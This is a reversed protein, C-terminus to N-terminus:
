RGGDRWNVLRREILDLAGPDVRLRHKGAPAIVLQKPRGAKEYLRHAHELPIVEDEEGHVLFVPRPSIREIWALPSVQEFEREWEALSGPFAPDRILGIEKFLKVWGEAPMTTELFTFQAPSSASVVAKIRPDRAAQYIAIAAGASFGLLAIRDADVAPLARGFEIVAALDRAWGLMSLDGESLGTGRFNFVLAAFGREAFRRAMERYSEDGPKPRARPIGHLIALLPLREARDTAFWAGRIFGGDAKVQFPHELVTMGGDSM